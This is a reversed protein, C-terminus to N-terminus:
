ALTKEVQNWNSPRWVYVDVKRSAMLYSLCIRQEHTLRGKEAKLEAVVLRDGRLMFLDPRGKPGRSHLAVDWGRLEALDVVQAQFDAETLSEFPNDTIPEDEWDFARINLRDILLDPCEQATAASM